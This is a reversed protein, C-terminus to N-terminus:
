RRRERKHSIIRGTPLVRPRLPIKGTWAHRVAEYEAVTFVGFVIIHLCVPCEAIHGSALGQLDELDVEVQRPGCNPCRVRLTKAM